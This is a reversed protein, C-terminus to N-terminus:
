RVFVKTIPRRMVAVLEGEVNLRDNGDGQVLIPIENQARNKRDNRLVIKEVHLIHGLREVDDLITRLIPEAIRRLTEEERGLYRTRKSENPPDPWNEKIRGSSM